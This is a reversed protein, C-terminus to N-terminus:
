ALLFDDMTIDAANVRTLTLVAEGIQVEVDNGNQRVMVSTEFNEASIDEFDRINIM